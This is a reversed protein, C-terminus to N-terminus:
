TGKPKDKFVPDSEPVKELKLNIYSALDKLWVEQNEPFRQQSQSVIWELQAQEIQPLLLDRMPTSLEEFVCSISFLVPQLFEGFGACVCFHVNKPVSTLCVRM